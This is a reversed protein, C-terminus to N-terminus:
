SKVQLRVWNWSLFGFSGPGNVHSLRRQTQRIRDDPRHDLLSRALRPRRWPLEISTDRQGKISQSVTAADFDCRRGNEYLLHGNVKLSVGRPDFTVGAYGAASVIRGWNPDAGAIATKVLPSNAVNKAIVHAEDRTACGTVDITIVHSVGEGDEPIARALEM